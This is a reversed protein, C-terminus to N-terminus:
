RNLKGILEKAEFSMDCGGEIDRGLVNFYDFIIKEQQKSLKKKEM